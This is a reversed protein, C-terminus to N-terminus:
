RYMDGLEVLQVRSDKRALAEFAESFGAASYYIFRASDPRSADHAWKLGSNALDEVNRLLQAHLEPGVPRSSWKVEGLLTRGDDLSAVIDLEISRRNRDQGEWRSWTSDGPLKWEEHYGDAIEDTLTSGAAVATLVARYDATDR